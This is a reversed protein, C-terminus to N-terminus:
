HPSLIEVLRSSTWGEDALLTTFRQNRGTLLLPFNCLPLTGPMGMDGFVTNVIHTLQIDRNALFIVNVPALRPSNVHLEGNVGWNSYRRGCPTEEDDMGM